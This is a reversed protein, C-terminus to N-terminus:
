DSRRPRCRREVANGFWVIFSVCATFFSMLALPRFMTEKEVHHSTSLLLLPNLIWGIIAMPFIVVPGYVHSLAVYSFLSNFIIVFALAVISLSM